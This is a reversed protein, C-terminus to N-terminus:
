IKYVQTSHLAVLTRSFWFYRSWCFSLMMKAEIRMEMEEKVMVAGLAPVPEGNVEVPGGELVYLYAGRGEEIHFGVKKGAKVFCSYVAADSVIRLAGPYTNSVLPLFRNTREPKEVRKQEVAPELGHKSPFFWMQIFRMPKDPLNNLESHWMGKGVTTHQVWGKRLIGGKGREDAHRFEGEACYTVVENDRHPHLPWVAGPSLTDDNFVRLTGFHTYKPDYYEDFSFHWRGHFTGNEIEGHAQYITDPNRIIIM